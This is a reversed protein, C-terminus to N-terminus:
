AADRCDVFMSSGLLNLLLNTAPVHVIDISVFIQRLLDEQGLFGTAVCCDFTTRRDKQSTFLSNVRNLFDQRTSATWDLVFPPPVPRPKSTPALRMDAAWAQLRAQERRLRARRREDEAEIRSREVAAQRMRKEEEEAAEVAHRRMRKEEQEVAAQRVRMEEEERRKRDRKEQRVQENEAKQTAARADEAERRERSAAEARQKQVFWHAAPYTYTLEEGVSIDRLAIFKKYGDGEGEGDDHLMMNPQDSHNMYFTINLDNLGTDLIPYAGTETPVFYDKIMEQIPIPLNGVEAASIDVSQLPREHEFINEGAMIPQVCFLGVGRNEAARELRAKTRKLRELVERELQIANAEAFQKFLTVEFGDDGGSSPKAFGRYYFRGFKNEGYGTLHILSSANIRKSSLQIDQEPVEEGGDTFHGQLGGIFHRSVDRETGIPITAEATVKYWFSEEATAGQKRSPHGKGHDTYRWAGELCWGSSPPWENGRSSGKPSTWKGRMVVHAESELLNEDTHWTGDTFDGGAQKCGPAMLEEGASIHRTTVYDQFTASGPTTDVVELNANSDGHRVFFSLNVDDLGFQPVTYTGWMDQVSADRVTQAVLYPLSEVLLSPLGVASMRQGRFPAKSAPIDRMAVVRLGRLQHAGSDHQPVVELRCFSHEELVDSLLKSRASTNQQNLATTCPAKSSM